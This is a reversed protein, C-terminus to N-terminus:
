MAYTDLFIRQVAEIRDISVKGISNWITSAYELKTRVFTTYVIILAEVPLGKGFRKIM